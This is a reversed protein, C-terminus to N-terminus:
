QESNLNNVDIKEQINNKIDQLQQQEKMDKFYANPHQDYYKMLSTEDKHKPLGLYVFYSFLILVVAFIIKSSVNKM